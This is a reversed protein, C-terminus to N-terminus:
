KGEPVDTCNFGLVMESGNRSSFAFSLKLLPLKGSIRQSLWVRNYDAASGIQACYGFYYLPYDAAAKTWADMVSQDIPLQAQANDRGFWRYLPECHTRDKDMIMQGMIFYLANPNRLSIAEGQAARQIEIVDEHTMCEPLNLNKPKDLAPRVAIPDPQATVIPATVIQPAAITPELKDIPRRIPEPEITSVLTPLPSSPRNPRHASLSPSSVFLWFFFAVLSGVIAFKIAFRIVFWDHRAKIKRRALAGADRERDAHSSRRQAKRPPLIKQNDIAPQLM